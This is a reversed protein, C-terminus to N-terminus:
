FDNDEHNFDDGDEDDNKQIPKFGRAAYIDDAGDDKKDDEKTQGDPVKPTNQADTKPEIKPDSSYQELVYKRLEIWKQLVDQKVKEDIESKYNSQVGLLDTALKKLEEFLTNVEQPIHKPKIEIKAAPPEEYVAIPESQTQTVPPAVLVTQKPKPEPLRKKLSEFVMLHLSHRLFWNALLGFVVTAVIYHFFLGNNFFYYDRFGKHGPSVLYSIWQDTDPISKFTKGTEHNQLTVLPRAKFFVPNLFVWAWLQTATLVITGVIQKM